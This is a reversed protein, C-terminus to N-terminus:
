AVALGTFIEAYLKTFNGLNAKENRTERERGCFSIDGRKIPKKSYSFSNFKEEM